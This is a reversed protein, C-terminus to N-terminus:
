PVTLTTTVQTQSFTMRPTDTFTHGMLNAKSDASPPRLVEGTRQRGPRSSLAPGPSRATEGQGDHLQSAM